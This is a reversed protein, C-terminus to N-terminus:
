ALGATRRRGLFAALGVGAVLAAGNVVDTIWPATGALNLGGNLVALFAIATLTGAVNYRGPRIAAASLFSAALALLTFTDGVSPDAGGSRGVQLVGALGSLAGAVVFAGILLRRERLGALRAATRNSGLMYLHRGFATYVLVFHVLLAVLVVAFVIRPIGLWLGSGFDILSRSVGDTITQGKTIGNVVGVIAISTGLTVIVANVRAGVVLAGNVFGVVVGAGIGALAAVALGGGSSMVEACVVSGLSLTAGVSLDYEECVLPVLAALAVIALVAQSGVIAQFNAATPFVDATSPLLSFGVVLALTVGLLAWAEGFRALLSAGPPGQQRPAAAPSATTNDISM